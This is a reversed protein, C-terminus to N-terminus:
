SRGLRMLAAGVLTLFTALVKRLDLREGMLGVGILLAFVISTERLATVLAIPAQTFSWVVLSYAAWSAFGGVVFVRRGERPLRTLVGPRFLRLYVVFVAANALALWAYFGLATGAARAGTGDALSYGAIFCGTALALGTARGNRLGEGGRVLGLSLLGAVIVAVGLAELPALTVGLVTVSVVAVILPASGRAIPYVQTLDGIRYSEILFIQYGFHFLMGLVLWPWSEPAPAPVFFLVLIAWPVHGLIVGAMSVDKDLGSKAMANWSAHLLAALIVAGFVTGSM